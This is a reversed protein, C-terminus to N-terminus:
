KIKSMNKSLFSKFSYKTTGQKRQEAAATRDARIQKILGNFLTDVNNTAVSIETFSCASQSAFCEATEKKINRGQEIEMKNGLLIIPFNKTSYQVTKQISKIIKTAHKYSDISTISYM